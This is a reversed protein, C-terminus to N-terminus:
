VEEKTAWMENWYNFAKTVSQFEPIDDMVTYIYCEKNGGSKAGRMARGAMQLYQVLSNM